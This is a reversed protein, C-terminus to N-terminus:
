DLCDLAGVWDFVKMHSTAWCRYRLWLQLRATHVCLQGEGSIATITITSLFHHDLRQHITAHQVHVLCCYSWSSWLPSLSWQLRYWVVCVEIMLKASGKQAISGPLLLSNKLLNVKSLSMMPHLLPQLSLRSMKSSQSLSKPFSPSAFLIIPPTLGCSSSM